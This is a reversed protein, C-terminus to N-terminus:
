PRLFDVRVAGWRITGLVAWASAVFEERTAVYYTACGALVRARRSLKIASARLQKRRRVGSARRTVRIRVTARVKKVPDLRHTGFCALPGCTFSERLAEGVWRGKSSS